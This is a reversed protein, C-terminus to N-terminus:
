SFRSLTFNLPRLASRTLSVAIWDTLPGVLLMALFDAVLASLYTNGVGSPGFHYVESFVQSAGTAIVVLFTIVLGYTLVAWQVLAVREAM